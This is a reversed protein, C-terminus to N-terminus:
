YFRRHTRSLSACDNGSQLNLGYLLDEVTIQEGAILYISSGETSAAQQSVTVIDTM